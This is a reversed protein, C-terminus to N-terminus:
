LVCIPWLFRSNPRVPINNEGNKFSVWANADVIPEGCTADALHTTVAITQVITVAQDENSVVEGLFFSFFGNM